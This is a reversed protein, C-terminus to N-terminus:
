QAALCIAQEDANIEPDTYFNCLSSGLCVSGAGAKRAAEPNVGDPIATLNQEIEAPTLKSLHTTFARTPDLNRVVDLMQGTQSANTSETRM